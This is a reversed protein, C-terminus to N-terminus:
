KDLKNAYLEAYYKKNYKYHTYSRSHPKGRRRKNKIYYNKDKRNKGM